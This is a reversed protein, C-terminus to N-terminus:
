STRATAKMGRCYYGNDYRALGATHTAVRRVTADSPNWVPSTVKTSALYDNVPRDLDLQKRERLLMIASATMLKTDSALSYM